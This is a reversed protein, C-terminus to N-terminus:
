LSPLPMPLAEELAAAAGLVAEDRGRAAVLQLGIPRRDSTLGIPLSAAPQGSMNFPYTFPSWDYRPTGDPLLPSDLGTPFGALPLTPLLLLDYQALLRSLRSSFEIREAEAALYEPLTFAQGMEAVARFGADLEEHRTKPFRALLAAAGSFWLVQFPKWVGELPLEVPTVAAGLQACIEAAKHVAAAIDKEVAHGAYSAAYAIRRGRLGGGTLLTQEAPAMPLALPDRADAQGIVSLMLAADAASRTIPGVHALTGFPGYPWIPVRGFSPKLGFVGTLAAPIRISGGGDSGLHLAGMGTAAAVAAGGSSGGPTLKPNWPNRTIGTLPSDTVGKWGFEPTTTKGLFIAGAARLRAVAPADDEAPAADAMLKSGRKTPWGRVQALDKITVPVGDLAGMPEGKAWRRASAEASARSGAADVLVFANLAPDHKEIRALAAEIADVPSARRRRYRQLLEGASAVALDLKSM